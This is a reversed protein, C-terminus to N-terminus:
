YDNLKFINNKSWYDYIFLRLSFVNYNQSTYYLNALNLCTQTFYIKKIIITKYTIKDPFIIKM